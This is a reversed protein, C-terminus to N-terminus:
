NLQFFPLILEIPIFERLFFYKKRVTGFTKTLKACIKRSKNRKPCDVENNWVKKRKNKLIPALRQVNNITVSLMFHCLIIRQQNRIQKM